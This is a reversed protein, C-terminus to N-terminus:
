PISSRQFTERKHDPGKEKMVAVLAGSTAAPKLLREASLITFDTIRRLRVHQKM